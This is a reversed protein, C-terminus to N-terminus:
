FYLNAVLWALVARFLALLRCADLGVHGLVSSPCASPQFAQNGAVRRREHAPVLLAFSGPVSAVHEPYDDGRIIRIYTWNVLETKAM